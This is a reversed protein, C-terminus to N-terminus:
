LVPLLYLRVMLTIRAVKILLRPEKYQLLNFLVKLLRSRKKKGAIGATRGTFQHHQLASCLQDCTDCMVSIDSGRHLSHLLPTIESEWMDDGAKNDSSRARVRDNSSEAANSSALIVESQSQHLSGEQNNICDTRKIKDSGRGASKVRRSSSPSSESKKLPPVGRDTVTDMALTDSATTDATSAVLTGSPHSALSGFDSCSQLPTPPM